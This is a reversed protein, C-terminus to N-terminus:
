FLSEQIAGGIGHWRLGAMIDNYLEEAFEVDEWAAHAGEYDKGFFKRCAKMNIRNLGEPILFTRALMMTDIIDRLIEDHALGLMDFTGRIIPADFGIFNHGVVTCDTLFEAIKGAVDKFKPAGVWDAENYRSVRLAEPESREPHMMAIPTSWKGLTSHKAAFEIVEHEGAKTGNTEIDCFCIPRDRYPVFRRFQSYAM